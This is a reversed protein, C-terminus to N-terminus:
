LLERLKEFASPRRQSTECDCGRENLDLGCHQCLGKCDTQCLSRGPINEMLQRLLLDVFDIEKAEYWEHYAWREQEEPSASHYREKAMLSLSCHQELQIHCPKLCRACAREVVLNLVGELTLEGDVLHQLRGQFRLRSLPVLDSFLVLHGEVAEDLTVDVHEYPRGLLDKLSFPM